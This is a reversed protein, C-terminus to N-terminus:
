RKRFILVHATDGSHEHDPRSYMGIERLQAGNIKSGSELHRVLQGFQLSEYHIKNIGIVFLCGPRAITLLNSLADPGLHGHTFTGASLVAGYNTPLDDLPATLDVEYLSRYVNKQEAIQLMEPSIDMGDIAESPLGLKEAVLGTGCGIDAIPLDSENAAERYIDAIAKPYQWGMERAFDTDYTSAFEDYYNANDEPSSLKYANELIAKGSDTKTM